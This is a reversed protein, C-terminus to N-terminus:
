SEGPTIGTSKKTEASWVEFIQRIDNVTLTKVVKEPIHAELFDFMGKDTKLSKLTEYPVDGGLPLSYSEEGINIKLVEIEERKRLTVEAM